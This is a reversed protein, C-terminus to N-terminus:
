SNLRMPGKTENHLSRIAKMAPKLTTSWLWEHAHEKAWAQTKQKYSNLNELLQVLGGKIGEETVTPCSGLSNGITELVEPPGHPVQVDCSPVFHELHGTCNTLVNPVGLCRAELPCIGFGEGRSPQIVADSQLLFWAMDRPTLGNGANHIRIRDPHKLRSIFERLGQTENVRLHLCANYKASIEDFARLLPATSKRRHFTVSGSIHVLNYKFENSIPQGRTWSTYIGDIGHRAVLIPKKVGSELFAQHCFKSPVIILDLANCIQVWDRPIRSSECVTVLIKKKHDKLWMLGQEPYGVTIGLPADPDLGTAYPADLPSFPKNGPDTAWLAFPLNNHRLEKAYARAVNAISLYNGVQGYFQIM